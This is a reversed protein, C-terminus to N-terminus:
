ESDIYVRFGEFLRNDLDGVSVWTFLQKQVTTLLGQVDPLALRLAIPSNPTIQLSPRGCSLRFIPLSGTPPSCTELPLRFASGDKRLPDFVRTGDELLGRWATPYGLKQDLGFSYSSFSSPSVPPPTQVDAPSDGSAV